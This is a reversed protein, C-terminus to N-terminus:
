LRLQPLPQFLPPHQISSPKTGYPPVPTFLFVDFKVGLRIRVDLDGDVLFSGSVGSSQATKKM